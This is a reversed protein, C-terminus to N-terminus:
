SQKNEDMQKLQKQFGINPQACERKSKVLKYSDDFSLNMIKMLYGICVAASRSVGANCHVLICGGNTSRSRISEIIEISKEIVPQLNTEPLDLCPIFHCRVSKEDVIDSSPTEIGISLIDTIGYEHINSLIVSDQSGLYLLNRLICAPKQDPKTDVVFGCKKGDLKIVKKDCSNSENTALIQEQSGDPYTVNTITPKLNKKKLQLASLLSM